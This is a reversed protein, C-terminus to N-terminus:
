IKAVVKNNIKKDKIFKDLDTVDVRYNRKFRYAPLWGEKIWFYVTMYHVGLKDAVEQTTLQKMEEGGRM